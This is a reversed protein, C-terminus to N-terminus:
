SKCYAGNDKRCCTPETLHKYARNNGSNWALIGFPFHALKMGDVRPSNNSNNNDACQKKKAKHKDIGMVAFLALNIALLYVCLIQLIM